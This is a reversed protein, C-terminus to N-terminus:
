KKDAALYKLLVQKRDTNEAPVINKPTGTHEVSWGSWERFAHYTWDWKYEEFLSITDELWAAGDPAWIVVSFEGVQIKANYKQAFNITARMSDRLKERDKHYGIAKAPYTNVYNLDNIVGQHTYNGPNYMHVSYIVNKFPLPVMEFLAPNSLYNGQVLIPTEPDIERIAKAGDYMLNWWDYRAPGRQDPENYLDYGYIIPKDKLRAATQRWLELYLNRYRDEEQMLFRGQNGFKKVKALSQSLFTNPGLNWIGGYRNGPPRHMDVIVQIDYKEFVPLLKELHDISRTFWRTYEGIDFFNRIGDVIQYRVLNVNWAALDEIHKETVQEWAPLMVGRRRVNGTVRETYECKFNPPIKISTQPPEVIEYTPNRFELIGYGQQIGFTLGIDSSDAPFSCYLEVSQWHPQDGNLTTTSFFVYSGDAKFYSLIKGGVHSGTQHSAIERCRMDARFWVNKGAFRRLNVLQIGRTNNSIAPTPPIDVKYVGNHHSTSFTVGGFNQKGLIFDKPTMVVKEAHLLTAAFFLLFFMIKEM